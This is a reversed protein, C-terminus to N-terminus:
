RMRRAGKAPGRSSVPEVSQAQCNRLEGTDNGM